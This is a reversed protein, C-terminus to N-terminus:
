SILCEIARVLTIAALVMLALSALMSSVSLTKLDLRSRAIAVVGSLFMWWALSGCFVGAALSSSRSQYELTQVAALSLIVTLPNTLGIAVASLYARTPRIFNATETRLLCDRARLTKIAFSILVLSSLCSLTLTHLTIWPQVISSLGVIAAASYALHVTAAGCGTALGCGVGSRLTRQICLLGMPGIPAAVAFGVPTGAFFRGALYMHM